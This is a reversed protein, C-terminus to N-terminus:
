SSNAIGFLIFVRILSAEWAAYLADFNYYYLYYYNKYFHKIAHQIKCLIKEM